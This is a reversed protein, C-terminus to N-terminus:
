QVRDFWVGRFTKFRWVQKGRETIYYEATAGDNRTYLVQFCDVGHIRSKRGTYKAEVTFWGSLVFPVEWVAPLMKLNESKNASDIKEALFYLFEEPIIDNDFSISSITDNPNNHWYNMAPNKAYDRFNWEVSYLGSRITNQWVPSGAASYLGTTHMSFSTDISRYQMEASFKISDETKQTHIRATVPYVKGNIPLRASFWADSAKAISIALLCLLLIQKAM